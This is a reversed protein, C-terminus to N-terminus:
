FTLGVGLDIGQAWFSTGQFLFAPRQPSAGPVPPPLLAPNVVLDIQDGARVVSSWYLFTYGAHISLHPGFQYGLQVRMEPVVGFVNRTHSGSNSSLALLGGQNFVPPFGPVTVTTSGNIDVREHTSGLAIRAMGGLSWNGWYFQGQLGFDGGNFQNSTRFSDTVIINTGLPAVTQTPDTSTLNEGIGVRDSLNLYRYGALADLRYCCCCCLNARGLAGAGLLSGSSANDQVSGNLIGPFSVLEANPRGTGADFFPRGVNGPAGGSFGTAQTGLQFFYGEVGWTCDCDLWLGATVRGGVTLGGNVPSGGFLVSTGPAGPVGVESRPTGPPSATVLPPLNAPKLWWLLVEADVWYRGPSTPAAAAATEVVETCPTCQTLAETCPTCQALAFSSVLLTLFLSTLARGCM